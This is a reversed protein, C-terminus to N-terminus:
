RRHCGVLEGDVARTTTTLDVTILETRAGTPTVPVIQSGAENRDRGRALVKCEGAHGRPVVQITIRVLSDSLVQYSTLQGDMQGAQHRSYLAYAGALLALGLAGALVATLIRSRRSPPDYRGPPLDPPM